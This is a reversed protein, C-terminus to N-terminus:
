QYSLTVKARGTTPSQSSTLYALITYDGGVYLYSPMVIYTGVVTLDFQDDGALRSHDGYDGITLLTNTDFAEIVEVTLLTVKSQDSVEGISQISTENDIEVQYTNADSISTEYSAILKWSGDYLYLGWEGDGKDLVHAQDGLIVSLANRASINNVVYNSAHRIGQQIYIAASKQGNEVSFLGFDDVPTGARNALDIARSDDAVLSILNETTAPTNLALGSASDDGAFYVGNSDQLGNVIVIESGSEHTLELGSGDITRATLGPIAAANIDNMMDEATSCPAGYKLMGETITSFEVLVGNINATPSANTPIFLVEGYQASLSSRDTSVVNPRQVVFATVGTLDSVMNLSSALGAQDGDGGITINQGNVNIINGITTTANAITSLTKTQTFDRLKIYVPASGTLSLTGPTDESVYLISAIDGALFDLNDVIKQSPNIMITNPDPVQSVRGIIYPFDSSTKVFTSGNPDASVLDDVSFDHEPLAIPFNSIKDQNQFRSTLNPYFTPGVGSPPLPDIVPIGSDNLSFILANTPVTFIGSGLGSSDRFTNYRFVDEVLCVVEDNTKYDICIIKVAQGDFSNAVYDGVKVDMGNYLHPERTRHSSHRQTKVQLVITWRYDKPSAGFEWYPDDQGDDYPWSEEGTQSVVLCELVKAPVETYSM